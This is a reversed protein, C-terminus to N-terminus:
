QILGISFTFSNSTFRFQSPNSSPGITVNSYSSLSKEYRVDIFFKDFEFGLGGQLLLVPRNFFGKDLSQHTYTALASKLGDNMKLPFSTVPGGFIRGKRFRLGILLPIDITKYSGTVRAALKGDSKLIDFKGGKSAFLFEPQFFFSGRTLRVFFGASFGTKTATNDVFNDRVLMNTELLPLGNSQVRVAQIENINMRNLMAAGRVGVMFKVADRKYEEAYSLSTDETTKGKLNVEDETLVKPTKKTLTDKKVQAITAFSAGCLLLLLLHKKM